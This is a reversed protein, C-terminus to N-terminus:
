LLHGSFELDRITKRVPIKRFNVNPAGAIVFLGQNVLGLAVLGKM